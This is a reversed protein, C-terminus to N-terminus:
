SGLLILKHFSRSSCICVHNSGHSMFRQMENDATSSTSLTKGKRRFGDAQTKSVAVMPPLGGGVGPTAGSSTGFATGSLAAELAANAAASPSQAAVGGVGPMMGMGGVGPLGPMGPLGTTGVAGPPMTGIGPIGPIGPLGMSAAAAAAAVSAVAVTTSNGAASAVNAGGLKAMLSARNTSDMKMGGAGEDDDLKWNGTADSSPQEAKCYSVQLFILYPCSESNAYVLVPLVLWLGCPM